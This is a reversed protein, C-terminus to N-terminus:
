NSFHKRLRIQHKVNHKIQNRKTAGEVLAPVLVNLGTLATLLLWGWFDLANRGDLAVILLILLVPILLAGTKIWRKKVRIFVAVALALVMFSLAIWPAAEHIKEFQIFSANIKLAVVWGLVIPLPLLMLSIFLWDKRLTHRAVLFVIALALPFYALAAFITWNGPLYIFILGIIIVPFLLYGLWPFLWTPKGHCWGYIVTCIVLIITASIWFTHQWWHMAFLIAILFHPLAAFFSQRWSGESYVEYIQQAVLKPPGLIQTIKETAEEQSLGEEEFDHVRDEIHGEIERLVEEQMGSDLRLYSKLINLYKM